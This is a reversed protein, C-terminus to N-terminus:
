FSCLDKGFRSDQSIKEAIQIRQTSVANENSNNTNFCKLCNGM